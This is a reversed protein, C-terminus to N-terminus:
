ARWSPPLGQADRMAQMQGMPLRRVGCLVKNLTRFKLKATLWDDLAVHDDTRGEILRYPHELAVKRPMAATSHCFLIPPDNKDFRKKTLRHPKYPETAPIGEVNCEVWGAHFIDTDPHNKFHKLTERLRHMHVLDDHDIVLILDAKATKNGINRAAVCGKNEKVRVSKVRKDEKEIWDLYLGTTDTSGDDVIVLEWDEVSQKQISDVTEAIYGAGNFTPM